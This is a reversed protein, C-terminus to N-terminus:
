HGEVKGKETSFPLDVTKTPDDEVLSDWQPDPLYYLLFYNQLESVVFLDCILYKRVILISFFMWNMILTSLVFKMVMCEPLCIHVSWHNDVVWSKKAEERRGLWIAFSMIDGIWPWRLWKGTKKPPSPMCFFEPIESRKDEKKERWSFTVPPAELLMEGASLKGKWWWQGNDVSTKVSICLSWHPYLTAMWEWQSINLHGWPCFQSSYISQIKRM